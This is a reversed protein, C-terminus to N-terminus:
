KYLSLLSFGLGLRSLVYSLAWVEFYTPTLSPHGGGLCPVGVGVRFDPFWGKILERTFVGGQPSLPTLKFSSAPTLNPPAM